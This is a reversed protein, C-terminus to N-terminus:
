IVLELGSSSVIRVNTTIMEKSKKITKAGTYTDRVLKM